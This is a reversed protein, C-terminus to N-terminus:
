DLWYRLSVDSERAVRCALGKYAQPRSLTHGWSRRSSIGGGIVTQLFRTTKSKDTGFQPALLILCCTVELNDINHYSLEQQVCTARITIVLWRSDAAHRKLFSGFPLQDCRGSLTRFNQGCLYSIDRYDASWWRLVASLPAFATRVGCGVCCYNDSLQDLRDYVRVTTRSDQLPSSSLWHSIPFNSGGAVCFCGRLRYDGFNTHTVADAIDVM